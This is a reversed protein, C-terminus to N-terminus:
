RLTVRVDVTCINSHRIDREHEGTIGIGPRGLDITEDRMATLRHRLAALGEDM